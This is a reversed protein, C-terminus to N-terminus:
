WESDPLPGGLAWLASELEEDSMTKYDPKNRDCYQSLRMIAALHRFAPYGGKELDTDLSRHWAEVIGAVGGLRGAMERCLAKVQLDSRQNKVATLMKGMQRRNLRDRWAARRMREATNHCDRCQRMRIQGARHRLRFEELPKPVLCHECLRSGSIEAPQSPVAEEAAASEPNQSSAPM